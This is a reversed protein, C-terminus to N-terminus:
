GCNHGGRKYAPRRGGGGAKGGRADDGGEGMGRPGGGGLPFCGGGGPGGLAATEGALGLERDVAMVKAGEQAFRLATARGNGMGTGPGQGAGVVIATKSELRM